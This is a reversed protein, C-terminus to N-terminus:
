ETKERSFFDRAILEYAFMRNENLNEQVETINKHDVLKVDTYRYLPKVEILISQQKRKEETSLYGVFVPLKMLDNKLMIQYLM